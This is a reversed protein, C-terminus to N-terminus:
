RSHGSRAARERFEPPQPPHDPWFFRGSRDFTLDGGPKPGFPHTIAGDSATNEVSVWEWTGVVDQAAQAAAKSFVGIALASAALTVIASHRKM